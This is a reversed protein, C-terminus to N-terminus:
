TEPLNPLNDGMVGFRLDFDEKSLKVGDEWFDIMQPGSAAVWSNGEESLFFPKAFEGSVGVLAPGNEWAFFDTIEM